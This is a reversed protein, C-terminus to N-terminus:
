IIIMTKYFSVFMVCTQHKTFNVIIMDWWSYCRSIVIGLWTTFGLLLYGLHKLIIQINNPTHM